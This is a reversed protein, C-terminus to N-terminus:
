ETEIRCGTARVFVGVGVVWALILRRVNSFALRALSGSDLLLGLASLGFYFAFAMWKAACFQVAAMFM